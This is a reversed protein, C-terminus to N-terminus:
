AILGFAGGFAAAGFARKLFFQLKQGCKEMSFCSKKMPNTQSFISFNRSGGGGFIDACHHTGLPTYVRGYMYAHLLM